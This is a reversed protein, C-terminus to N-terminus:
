LLIIREKILNEIVNVCYEQNLDLDNLITYRGKKVGEKKSNMLALIVQQKTLGIKSLSNSLGIKKMIEKPKNYDKRQIFSMIITGLAVLEGHLPPNEFSEEAAKAFLHESGSAPPSGVWLTIYCLLIQMLCYEEIWDNLKKDVDLLYIKEIIESCIDLVVPNTKDNNKLESLKWDEVATIFAMIDGLGAKILRSNNEQLKNLFCYDLVILDPTPGDITKQYGFKKILPLVHIKPSAYVHTALSSPIAVCFINTKMKIFKLYDMVRGGGIGLLFYNDNELNEKKLRVVLNNLNDFDLQDILFLNNEKDFCLLENSFNDKFFNFANSDSIIICKNLKVQKMLIKIQNEVLLTKDDLFKNVEINEILKKQKIKNTTEQNFTEILDVFEKLLKKKEKSYLNDGLYYSRDKNKFYNNLVSNNFAM